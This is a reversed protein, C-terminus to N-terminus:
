EAQSTFDASWDCLDCWSGPIPLFTGVNRRLELLVSGDYIPSPTGTSSFSGESIAVGRIDATGGGGNNWDATTYVVGTISANGRIEFPGDIILVVPQEVSGVEATNLTFSGASADVWIVQGQLGNVSSNGCGEACNVLTNASAKMAEKSTGFFREFFSDGSAEALDDDSAMLSAAPPTGPLTQLSSESNYQVTGGAHVTTGATSPDYNTVHIAASGLDVNGKATLAAAPMGVLASQFAVVQSASATVPCAASCPSCAPEANDVEDWCGRADVLIKSYPNHSPGRAAFRVSISAEGTMSALSPLSWYDPEDEDQEAASFFLPSSFGTISGGSDRQLVLDRREADHLTALALQLGADAAMQARTIRYNNAADERDAVLNRHIFFVSLTMAFLLILAVLLTAAGRQSHGSRAYEPAQSPM